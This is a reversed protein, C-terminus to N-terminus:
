NSLTYGLINSGLAGTGPIKFETTDAASWGDVHGDPFWANARRSHRLNLSSNPTSSAWPGYTGSGLSWNSSQYWGVVNNSADKATSVTDTLYPLHSPKYLSDLKVLRRYADASTSAIQEGPYYCSYWFSRLGYSQATNSNRGYYPYNMGSQKYSAPPEQRPCQFVQGFPLPMPYGTPNGTFTGAMPAYGYGMMMKALSQFEVYSSSCEGGLIWGDFDGAYGVLALGCQRQNNKCQVTVAREKANQLAPLLMSALIGIIAIVVLLEILTFGAVRTLEAQARRKMWTEGEQTHYQEM